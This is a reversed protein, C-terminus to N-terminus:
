EYDWYPDLLDGWQGLDNLIAYDEAIHMWENYTFDGYSITEGSGFEYKVQALGQVVVMYNLLFYEEEGPLQVWIWALLRRYDENDILDDNPDTQLVISEASTLLDCTYNSGPKGWEEPTGYTEETDMNLFRTNNSFNPIANYIIQPYNFRATDGDICYDLTVEFYGGRPDVPDILSFSDDLYPGDYELSLVEFYPSIDSYEPYTIIPLFNDISFEDGVQLYQGYSIFIYSNEETSDGFDSFTVEVDLEDFVSEIEDRNLGTIDPLVINGESIENPNKCGSLLVITVILLLSFLKKM